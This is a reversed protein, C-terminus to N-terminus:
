SFPNQIQVSFEKFDEVDKAVPSVCILIVTLNWGLCSVASAPSSAPFPSAEVVTPLMSLQNLRSSGAIHSSPTHGFVGYGVRCTRAWGPESSSEERYSPCPFLSFTWWGIVLYRFHFAYVCQFVISICFFEIMFNAPLHVFASVIISLLIFWVWFSLHQM